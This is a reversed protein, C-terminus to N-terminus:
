SHVRPQSNKLLYKQMNFIQLIYYIRDLHSLLAYEERYHLFLWLFIEAEFQCFFLSVTWGPSLFCERYFFFFFFSSFCIFFFYCFFFVSESNLLAALLIFSISCHIDSYPTFHLPHKKSIYWPCVTFKCKKHDKVHFIMFLLYLFIFCAWCFM